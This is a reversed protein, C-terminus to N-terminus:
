PRPLKDRSEISQTRAHCKRTGLNQSWRCRPNARRRRLRNIRTGHGALADDKFFFIPNKSARTFEIRLVAFFRFVFTVVIWPWTRPM